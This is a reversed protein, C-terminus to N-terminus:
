VNSQSVNRRLEVGVNDSGDEGDVSEEGQQLLTGGFLDDADGGTDTIGAEGLGGLEGGM